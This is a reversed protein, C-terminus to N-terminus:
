RGTRRDTLLAAPPRAREVNDVLTTSAGNRAAIIGDTVNNAVLGGTTSAYRFEIPSPYTGSVFVANDLIQTGPSDAISIAVDGPQDPFRVFVNNRIIGGRHDTGRAREVLGLAIGRACNLFSNGNVVTNSAHNWVLIAPGALTGPPSVINSFRNHRITWNAGAHIDIGNTYASPARSTYEFVSDEVIGDNVGAGAADPNSKLLQQGADILDVDYVRPRDTGANFILAHYRVDRITLDAIIVNRVGGGTWIGYPVRADGAYSMGTGVLVVDERNASAGRITVNSLPGHVYLPQSLFYTGRTIVITTNSTLTRVAAQLQPETSVTVVTGSPTALGIVSAAVAPGLTAFWRMRWGCCPVNWPLREFPRIKKMCVKTLPNM